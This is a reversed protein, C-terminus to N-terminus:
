RRRRRTLRRVGAVIARWGLLFVALTLAAVVIFAPASTDGSALRLLIGGAVTTAWIPLGTRAVALPARWALTVLWAVALAVLFPWATALVGLVPGSGHEVRGIAVFSLVLATDVVAVLVALPRNV